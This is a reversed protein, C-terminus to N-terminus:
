WRDRRGGEPRLLGSDSSVLGFSRYCWYKWGLDCGYGRVWTDSRLVLLSRLRMLFLLFLLVALLLLVAGGPGRGFRHRMVWGM